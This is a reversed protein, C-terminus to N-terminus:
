APQGPSRTWIVPASEGRGDEEPTLLRVVEPSVDAYAVAGASVRDTV